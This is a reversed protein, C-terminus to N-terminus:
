PNCAEPQAVFARTPPPSLLNSQGRAATSGIVFRLYVTCAQCNRNSVGVVAVTVKVNSSIDTPSTSVGYRLSDYTIGTGRRSALVRTATAAEERAGHAALSATFAVVSGPFGLLRGVVLVVAAKRVLLM